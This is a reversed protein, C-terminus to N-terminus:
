DCDVNSGSDFCSTAWFRPAFERRPSGPQSQGQIRGRRKGLELWIEGLEIKKEDHRHWGPKQHGVMERLDFPFLAGHERNRLRFVIGCQIDFHVARILGLGCPHRNFVSGIDEYRACGDEFRGIIGGFDPAKRSSYSNEPVLVATGHRWM